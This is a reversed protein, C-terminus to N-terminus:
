PAATAERPEWEALLMRHKLCTTQPSGRIFGSKPEYVYGTTVLGKAVNKVYGNGHM